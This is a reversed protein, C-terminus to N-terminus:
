KSVPTKGSSEVILSVTELQPKVTVTFELILGVQRLEKSAEHILRAAAAIKEVFDM